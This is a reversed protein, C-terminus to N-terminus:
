ARSPPPCPRLDGALVVGQWEAKTDYSHEVPVCAPLTANTSPASTRNRARGVSQNRSPCQGPYFRM